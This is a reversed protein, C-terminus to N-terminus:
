DIPARREAWSAAVELQRALRLLLNKGQLQRSSSCV